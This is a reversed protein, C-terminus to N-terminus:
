EVAAGIGVPALTAFLSPHVRLPRWKGKVPPRPFSVVSITGPYLAGRRFTLPSVSAREFGPQEEVGECSTEGHKSREGADGGQGNHGDHRRQESNVSERRLTEGEAERTQERQVCESPDGAAVGVHEPHRSRGEVVQCRRELTAIVVTEQTLDSPGLPREPGHDALLRPVANRWGVCHADAVRRGTRRREGNRLRLRLVRSVAERADLLRLENPATVVAAGRNIPQQEGGGAGLEARKIVLEDPM